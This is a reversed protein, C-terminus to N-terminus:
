KFHLKSVKGCLSEHNKSHQSLSAYRAIRSIRQNHRLYPVCLTVFLDVEVEM